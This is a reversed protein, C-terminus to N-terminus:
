FLRYRQRSLSFGHHSANTCTLGTTRSACRFAGITISRGYRLVMGPVATTDGHCVLYARGRRDLGFSDGWALHCDKPHRPRAYSYRQIDCRLADPQGAEHVSAICWINRSPMHFARLSASAPAAALAVVGLAALLLTLRRLLV